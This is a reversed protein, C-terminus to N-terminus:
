RTSRRDVVHPLHELRGPGAAGEQGPASGDHVLGDVASGANAGISKLMEITVLAPAHAYPSDAPDLVVIPRGDYGSEKLLQEARELDPKRRARRPRTRCGAACSSAVPLDQLVERQRHRGAPLEESRRRAAAGAPGEQQQLASAPPEAAPHGPQGQPRHRLRTLNANKELRPAFDLPVNEWYDVEGAELAAGATAPDPIYRWEVRDVLARKGGAAGSPHEKRPVYDANRIYVVRNGPQWEDKSFKYPGSGIVEKVQENPDTAALRAPMIFSPSASPKGLADLVLGFPTELEIVFTKKDTPAM